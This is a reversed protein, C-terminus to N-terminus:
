SRPGSESRRIETRGDSWQIEFDGGSRFRDSRRMWQGNQYIRTYGKKLPANPDSAALRHAMGSWASQKQLLTQRVAHAMNEQMRRIEDRSRGLRNLLGPRLQEHRWALLDRHRELRRRLGRGLEEQQRALQEKRSEIRRRVGHLAYNDLFRSVADKHRDIRQRVIRELQMRTDDTYMRLDNIDPVAMVIAQTPTAARADAVFDSISFDTEHGVASVVPIPCDAIARAVPEENFAWLDELSGGGRGVILLDAEQRESFWRIGQVIEPVAQGGQVSAHYLWVECMPYRKELTDRMDQFAAGTASTIIGIIRPFRPLEKKRAPDFLGEAELKRKLREFAQQLAGAGAPRVSRVILQYRGHPPYVQVPGSVVVEDGHQPEQDLMERQSRWMVCSLQAGADKLTFYLHGNRSAQPSSIEGRVEVTSFHDELVFKIEETLATVTLVPPPRDALISM